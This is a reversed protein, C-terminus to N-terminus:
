IRGTLERRVEPEYNLRSALWREVDQVPMQKREAYDAIQDKGVLGVNFYKADPHAFYIGSVSAAPYMALSETLQIGTHAEVNLLDWILQKETHDPCAPYGPAPRM